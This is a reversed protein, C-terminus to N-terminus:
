DNQKTQKEIQSSMIGIAGPYAISHPGHVVFKKDQEYEVRHARTYQAEKQHTGSHYLASSM